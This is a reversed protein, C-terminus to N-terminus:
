LELKYKIETLNVRKMNKTMLHLNRNKIRSEVFHNRKLIIKLLEDKVEESLELVDSVELIFEKTDLFILTEIFSM